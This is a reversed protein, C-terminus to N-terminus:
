SYSGSLTQGTGPVIYIGYQCPLNVNQIGTNAHAISYIPRTTDSTSTADYVTGNASGAVIVSINVIRGASPKIVTPSTINWFDLAGALLTTNQTQSNTAGVLLKVATLLDDLSAPM